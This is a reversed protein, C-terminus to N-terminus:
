RLPAASQQAPGPVDHACGVKVFAAREVGQVFPDAV